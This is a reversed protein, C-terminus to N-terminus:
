PLPVFASCLRLSPPHACQARGAKPPRVISQIEDSNILRTLDANTMLGRPLKYGKKQASVAETTGACMCARAGDSMACALCFHTAQQGEEM